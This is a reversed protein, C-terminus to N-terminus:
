LISIGKELIEFAVEKRGTGKPKKLVVQRRKNDIRRIEIVYGSM